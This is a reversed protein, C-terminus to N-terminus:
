ENGKVPLTNTDYSSIIEILEAKSVVEFDLATFVKVMASKFDSAGQNYSENAIQMMDTKIKEM